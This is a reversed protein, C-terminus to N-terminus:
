KIGINPPQTFLNFVTASIDQATRAYSIEMAQMHLKIM